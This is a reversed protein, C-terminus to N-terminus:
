WKTGAGCFATNRRIKRRVGEPTTNVSSAIRSSRGAPILLDLNMSAGGAKEKVCISPAGGPSTNPRVVDAGRNNNACSDYHGREAVKNRGRKAPHSPAPKIASPANTVALSASRAATISATNSFLGFCRSAASRRPRLARCTFRRAFRYRSRPAVPIADPRRPAGDFLANPSSTRRSASRHNPASRPSRASTRPPSATPPDRGTPTAPSASSTSPPPLSHPGFRRRSARTRWLRGRRARTPSSTRAPPHVRRLRCLRRPRVPLWRRVM